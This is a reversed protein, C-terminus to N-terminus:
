PRGGTIVGGAAALYAQAEEVTRFVGSLHGDISLQYAGQLRVNGDRPGVVRLAFRGDHSRFLGPWAPRLPGRVRLAAEQLAQARGQLTM